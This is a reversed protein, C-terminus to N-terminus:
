PSDGGSLRDVDLGDTTQYKYMIPEVACAFHMMYTHLCMTHNPMMQMPTM